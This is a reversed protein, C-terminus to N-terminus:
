LDLAMLDEYTERRRILRSKGNEVMVVAPRPNMNYNSSMALCYAGSSPIAVIDGSELVPLPVNKVLLDGSECYKGALTVVKEKGSASMKNAAVAEYESGYLAPRINDGMGGDLSVYTRVTPIEKIVGVTYLAVGARGVISRGPEIILKPESYGLDRCKHKLMSTIIEAYQSIEPPLENRVYGIAFGGGPSFERLNLGEDKFQVLYELVTDIAESYPELEFIPSGLHFHIGKLDLNSSNLAQRIAVTSEGSEISFGFKVDLIGTTTHGHTHADVSPSLRLMIGQTMGKGKAIENLLDLEQFGDVVITGIGVNIAESLEQLTKNNGHFYMREAPFGTSMAVAIEGGSVVDLSLGEEDAIRSMEKNLFAKSAYAVTTDPYRSSFEHLYTKAM